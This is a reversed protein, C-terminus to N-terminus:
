IPRRQTATVELRQVWPELSKVTQAGFVQGAIRGQATIFVTVPLAAVLYRSTAVDGSRDVGVPYRDGAAVLLAIAKSAAVDDTDIGVFRVPGHPGSSVRAFASLEARCDQCWSAFFNLVVPDGAFNSLRVPGEGQLSPLSFGPALRGTALEALGTGPGSENITLGKQAAQRSLASIVSSPRPTAAYAVLAAIAIAALACLGAFAPWRATTM